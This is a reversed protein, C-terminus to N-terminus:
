RRRRRMAWSTLNVGKLVGEDFAFKGKGALSSMLAQLNAGSGAIDIEIDGKGEVM